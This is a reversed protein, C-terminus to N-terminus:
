MLTTIRSLAVWLYQIYVYKIKPAALKLYCIKAKYAWRKRLRDQLRLLSYTLLKYNSIFYIYSLVYM